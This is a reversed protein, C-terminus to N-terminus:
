AASPLRFDPVDEPKAGAAAWSQFRRFADLVDPLDNPVDKGTEGTSTIGVSKPAAVFVPYDFAERVHTWLAANHREDLARLTTQLERTLADASRAVAPTFAAKYSKRLAAAKERDSADGHWLPKRLKTAGIGRPYPPPDASFWEPPARSVGIAALEDLIDAVDKCDGSVIRPSYTACLTDREADFFGDHAAHAADWAADWARQDETTFRRLFVLSAKVTTDASRFTEEPLSVVALIKAKGECWRRLWTLSPNNLNGDPLV